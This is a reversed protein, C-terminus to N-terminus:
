IIEILKTVVNKKKGYVQLDELPTDAQTAVSRSRCRTKMPLVDAAAGSKKHVKKGKM